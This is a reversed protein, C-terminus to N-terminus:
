SKETKTVPEIKISSVFVTARELGAYRKPLVGVAALKNERLKDALFGLRWGYNVVQREKRKHDDYRRESNADLM